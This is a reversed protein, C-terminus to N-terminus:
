EISFPNTPIRLDNFKQKMVLRPMKLKIYNLYCYFTLAGSAIGAFAGAILDPLTHNGLYIRSYAIVVATIFLVVSRKRNKFHLAFATALAFAMATHASVFKAMTNTGSNFIYQEDEFFIQFGDKHLYNKIVQTVLMSLFASGTVIWAITNKKNYFHYVILGICFLGSGLFTANIFIVNQIFSRPVHLVAGATGFNFMYIALATIGFSIIFLLNSNVKESNLLM